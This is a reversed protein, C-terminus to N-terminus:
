TKIIKKVYVKNNIQIKLLYIGKEIDSIDMTMESTQNFINKLLVKSRMDILELYCDRQSLPITINITQNAPIPFIQIDITKFENISTAIFISDHYIEGITDGNRIYGETKEISSMGPQFIYHYVKGLGRAYYMSMTGIEDYYINNYLECKFVEFAVNALSLTSDFPNLRLSAKKYSNDKSWMGPLTNYFMSPDNEITITDYYEYYSPPNSYDDWHKKKIFRSVTINNNIIETSLIEIKYNTYFEPPPPNSKEFWEHKSICFIDGTEFDFIDWYDLMEEGFASDQTRGGQLYYYNGSYYFDPFELIGYNKTLKILHNNSLQITKVSDFVGPLIEDFSIQTISATIDQLTDFLWSQNLTATHFIV